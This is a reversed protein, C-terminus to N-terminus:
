ARKGARLNHSSIRIAPISVIGSTAALRITNTMSLHMVQDFYVLSYPPSDVANARLPTTKAAQSV